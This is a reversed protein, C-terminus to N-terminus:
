IQVFMTKGKGLKKRAGFLVKNSPPLKTNWLERPKLLTAAEAKLDNYGIIDEQKTSNEDPVLVPAPLETKLPNVFFLDIFFLLDNQSSQWLSSQFPSALAFLDLFTHIM